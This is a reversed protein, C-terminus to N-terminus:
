TWRAVYIPVHTRILASQYLDEFGLDVKKTVHNFVTRSVCIGGPEALGELRAAVNVGDGYIDDGEVIIDGINIGIRLKIQRDEPVGTNRAVIAQQVDVACQVAEVVSPFEVLVGDGMLKVIHGGHETIKPELLEKRHAKLQAFTGAEDADMLRSYGVVDVALIATLRREEHQPEVPVEEM